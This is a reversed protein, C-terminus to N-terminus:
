RSIEGVFDVGRDHTGRSNLGHAGIHQVFSRRTCGIVGGAARLREVGRHDWYVVPEDSLLTRMTELSCFWSAGGISAKEVFRDSNAASDLLAHDPVNLCSAVVMPHRQRFHLYCAVLNEFWSVGYIMDNDTIYLYEVAFLAAMDAFKHVMRAIGINRPNRFVSVNPHIGHLREIAEYAGRGFATSADDVVFIRSERAPANRALSQFSRRTYDPRNYVSVFIGIRSPDLSLARDSVVGMGPM